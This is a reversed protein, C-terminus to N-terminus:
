VSGGGLLDDIDNAMGAALTMAQQVAAEVEDPTETVMVSGAATLILVTVEGDRQMGVIHQPNIRMERDNSSSDASTLRAYM